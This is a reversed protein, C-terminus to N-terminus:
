HMGKSDRTTLGCRSLSYGVCQNWHDLLGWLIFVTAHSGVFTTRAGKGFDEMGEAQNGERDNTVQEKLTM